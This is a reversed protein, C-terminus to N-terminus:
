TSWREQSLQQIVIQCGVLGHYSYRKQIEGACVQCDDAFFGLQTLADLVAKDGNDRDPKVVCWAPADPRLMGSHKGTRYHSRPRPFYFTEDVRIPGLLPSSPLFPKAAAAILSKWNEATGPNYVRAQWKDGFRRAFAKPRPQGKPEGLVFFEIAKM